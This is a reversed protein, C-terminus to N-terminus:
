AGLWGSGGTSGGCRDSRSSVFVKIWLEVEVM